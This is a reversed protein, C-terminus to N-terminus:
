GHTLDKRLVVHQETWGPLARVWGRRGTMTVAQAGHSKAIEFLQQQSSQIQRLDGGALFVNLEAGRPYQILELVAFCRERPWLLYRGSLVGAAIDEFTHTGDAHAM